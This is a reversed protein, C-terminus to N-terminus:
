RIISGKHNTELNFMIIMSTNLVSIQRFIQKEEKCGSVFFLFVTILSILAFRLETKSNLTTVKMINQQILNLESLM